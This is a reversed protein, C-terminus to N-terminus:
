FNLNSVIIGNIPFPLPCVPKLDTLKIGRVTLVDKIVDGVLSEGYQGDRCINVGKVLLINKPRSVKMDM